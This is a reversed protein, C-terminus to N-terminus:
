ALTRVVRVSTRGTAQVLLISPEESLVRVKCVFDAFLMANETDRYSGVGYCLVGFLQKGRAWASQGVLTTLDISRLRPRGAPIAGIPVDGSLQGSEVKAVRVSEPGTTNVLVVGRSEGGNSSKVTCRYSAYLKRKIIDRRSPGVGTCAGEVANRKAWPSVNLSVDAVGRAIYHRQAASAAAPTGVAALAVTLGAANSLKM